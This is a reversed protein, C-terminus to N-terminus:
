PHLLGLRPFAARYRWPQRTLLRYGRVAAHAGICLDVLGARGDRATGARLARGALFAAPWPLAERRFLDGPLVEELAEIRGLALSLEALILPNVILRAGQGASLLAAAAAKGCRPHDTAIDILIDSDVLVPTM